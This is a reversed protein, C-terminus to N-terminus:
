PLTVTHVSPAGMEFPATRLEETLCALTEAGGHGKPLETVALVSASQDLMPRVALQVLGEGGDLCRALAPRLRDLTAEVTEDDNPLLPGESVPILHLQAALSKAATVMLGTDSPADILDDGLELGHDRPATAPVAPPLAPAPTSRTPAVPPRNVPEFTNAPPTTPGNCSPSVAASVVVALAVAIPIAIALLRQKTM